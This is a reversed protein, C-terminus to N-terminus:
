RAESKYGPCNCYVRAPVLIIISDDGDDLPLEEVHSCGDRRHEAFHHDCRSCIM